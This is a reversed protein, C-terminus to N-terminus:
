GIAILEFSQCPHGGFREAYEMAMQQVLQEAQEASPRDSLSRLYSHHAQLSAVAQDLHGSIDVAHSPHPSASVAIARVGHWPPPEGPEPPFIWRNGADAAADLVAQGVARHDASNWSGPSWQDRHNITIILEAQYRRIAVALDRRLPLGYEIVGDPYDLFQVSHVGVAAAAARQEAERLPAAREPPIGDIGAEGRSVLLYAVQKGASTWRAIAGSTGWELDDPHAVIALARQWDEPLAALQDAV